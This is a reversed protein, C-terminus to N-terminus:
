KRELRAARSNLVAIQKKMNKQESKIQLVDEEMKTISSAIKILKKDLTKISNIMAYFMEDWRIRLYGDKGEAVSNKFVKQLDQAMVGVQSTNEKDSKFTYNYPMLAVIESLGQNNEDLVDKLRQDSLYPFAAGNHGNPYVKLQSASVDQVMPGVANFFSHSHPDAQGHEGLYQFWRARFFKFCKDGSRRCNVFTGYICQDRATNEFEYYWLRGDDYPTYFNGRVVINSNFVVTPSVQPKFTNGSRNFNDLKSSKQNYVEVVSRGNFGGLPVGGLFVHDYEDTEITTPTLNGAIGKSGGSTYGICTRSGEINNTTISSCALYGLATLNHVRSPGGVFTDYGLITNDQFDAYEPYYQSGVLLNDQYAAKDTSSVHSGNGVLYGLTINNSGYLDPSNSSNAGVSINYRPNNGSSAIFSGTNAGVYINAQPNGGSNERLSSFGVVTNQSSGSYKMSNAGYAVNNSSTVSHNGFAGLGAITNGSNSRNNVFADNNSALSLNGVNDFFLSGANVGDGSGYRFQIQRQPKNDNATISRSANIVVKARPSSSGLSSPRVGIYATSSWRPVGSDYYIDRHQEDDNVYNWINESSVSAGNRRKTVIPALAAFLVAIVVMVILLETLSFAHKKDNLRM